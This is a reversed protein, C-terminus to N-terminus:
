QSRVSPLLDIGTDEFSASLLLDPNNEVSIPLMLRLYRRRMPGFGTWEIVADVAELRPRGCAAADLYANICSAWFRRDPHEALQRGPKHLKSRSVWPPMGRGVEQFRFTDRSRDFLVYRGGTLDNAAQLLGSLGIRRFSSQWCEALGRLPHGSPLQAIDLSRRRLRDFGIPGTQALETVRQMAEFPNGHLEHRWGRRDVYHQLLVREPEDEHLMPMLSAYAMPALVAPRLGVVLGTRARTVGVFGLNKVAYEDLRPSHRRTAFRALETPIGQWLRGDRDILERWM